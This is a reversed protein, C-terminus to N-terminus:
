STFQLKNQKEKKIASYLAGIFTILQVNKPSQLYCAHAQLPLKRLFRGSMNESFKAVQHLYASFEIDEKNQYKSSINIMNHDKEGDIDNEHVFNKKSHNKYNEHKKIFHKYELLVNRLQKNPPVNVIGCRMLEKICSRLINYRAETNPLGIYQKIDARDVFAIDIAQTINSTTLIIVNEYKSLQDIQTLLANVSRIADSPESGAMSTQRAAALSEVEDILLCVLSDKDEALERIREFLKMILKGSESFWKSFLSHSNIEVLQGHFYRKSLRISIKQALAKCLSTKGTGPPGHLLVVRNCSIINTNVHRDSFLMATTSYNLLQSKVGIDFHLSEWIGEFESSPLVWQRCAITEGGNDDEMEETGMDDSLQYVNIDLETNSRDIKSVSSCIRIERVHSLLKRRSSFDIIGEKLIHFNENLFKYVEEEISEVDATSTELLCVEVVVIKKNDM